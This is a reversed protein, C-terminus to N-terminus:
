AVVQEARAVTVYSDAGFWRHVIRGAPARAAVHVNHWGDADVGFDVREVTVKLPLEPDDLVDGYRLHTARVQVTRTDGVSSFGGAGGTAVGRDLTGGTSGASAAVGLDVPAGQEAFRSFIPDRPRPEEGARASKRRRQSFAWRAGTYNNGRRM